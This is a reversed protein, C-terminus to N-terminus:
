KDEGSHEYKEQNSIYHSPSKENDMYIPILKLQNKFLKGNATYNTIVGSYTAGAKLAERIKVVEESETEPGQLFRCNRGLCEDKTYGTLKCFAQNVYVMPRDEKRMDAIAVAVKSGELAGEFLKRRLALAELDSIQKKSLELRKSNLCAEEKYAKSQRSKRILLLLAAGASACIYLFMLGINGFGETRVGAVKVKQIGRVDGVKWDKKPSDPHTNHCDVCSQKMRIPSTVSFSGGGFFSEIPTSEFANIQDLTPDARFNALSKTEATSLPARKRQAFPYDSKFEYSIRGDRHVSDFLPGLEISLTAPIPIGGHVQRYNESPKAIGGSSQIRTIINDNYYNRFATALTSIEDAQLSM